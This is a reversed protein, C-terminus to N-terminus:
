SRLHTFSTHAQSASIELSNLTVDTKEIEHRFCPKRIARIGPTQFAGQQIVTLPLICRWFDFHYTSSMEEDDVDNDDDDDDDNMM